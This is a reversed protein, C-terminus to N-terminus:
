HGLGLKKLLEPYYIYAAILSAFALAGGVYYKTYSQPVINNSTIDNTNDTNSSINNKFTIDNNEFNDDYTINFQKSVEYKDVICTESLLGDKWKLSRNLADWRQVIANTKTNILLYEPKNHDLILLLKGDKSLCNTPLPLYGTVTTHFNTAAYKGISQGKNLDYIELPGSNNGNNSNSIYVIDQQPHICLAANSNAALDTQQPNDVSFYGIITENKNQYCVNIYEYIIYDGSPSWYFKLNKSSFFMIPINCNEKQTNYLFVEDLHLTQVPKGHVLFNNSNKHPIITVDRLSSNKLSIEKKTNKEVDHITAIYDCCEIYSGKVNRSYVFLTKKALDFAYAEANNIMLNCTDDDDNHMIKIPFVSCGYNTTGNKAYQIFLKNEACFFIKHILHDCPITKKPQGTATDIIEYKSGILNKYGINNYKVVLLRTEDANFLVTRDKDTNFLFIRDKDDCSRYKRPWAINKIIHKQNPKKVNILEAEDTDNSCIMYNDQPSFICKEKFFSEGGTHQQCIVENTSCLIVDGPTNTTRLKKCPSFIDEDGYIIHESSPVEEIIPIRTTIHSLVAEFLHAEALKTKLEQLTKYQEQPNFLDCKQAICPILNDVLPPIELYNASILSQILQPLKEKKYVNKIDCIKNKSIAKMAPYLKNFDAYSINSLNVKDGNNPTIGEFMGKIMHSTELVKVKYERQSDGENFICVVKKEAKADQKM